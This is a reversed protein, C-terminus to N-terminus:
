MAEVALDVRMMEDRLQIEVAWLGDVGDPGVTLEGATHRAGSPDVWCHVTPKVYGVPPEVEVLAGDNTMVEVAATLRVRNGKTRLEFPYTIVPTGDMSIAPSPDGAARTQPPPLPRVRAERDRATGNWSKDTNPETSRSTTADVWADQTATDIVRRGPARRRTRTKSERKSAQRRAGPGEQGPMLTALADAFEGLPIADSERLQQAAADYGAALRCHREVRELAIKVFSRWQKDQVSRYIWDDHTPPEAAKFMDDVDLACKFVGSYGLRGSAPTAGAFYNVVLEPTRMLAVHHVGTATIRAGRPVPRDALDAPAVPGKQITLRGLRRVPRLSRIESDITLDDGDDTPEQRHRDMAEVFGRLRQHTRPNPIRILNGNDRLSFEMTRRAGGLTDIMRPWFNWAIAEAVFDMTADTGDDTEIRISPAIVLVTTGRGDAGARAPLGLLDAVEDAEDGTIPEPAGSIMRGWWHRGTYPVGDVDFTDGLACGLLRREFEGPALECLSDIIVTRAMSAIYFAAKGYGFSGGGFDKDPPQGINRVFDVFDRPEGQRDARTPGALGHTGFDAVYLTCMGDRLEEALALGPPPDVLVNDRLRAVTERDLTARGIEVRIGQSDPRKADWCNQVAERILVELPETDPRGLQNLIGIAALGGTANYPESYRQLKIM